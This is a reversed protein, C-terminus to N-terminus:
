EFATPNPPAESYTNPSPVLISFQVPITTGVM